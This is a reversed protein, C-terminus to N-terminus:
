KTDKLRKNFLIIDDWALRGFLRCLYYRLYNDFRKLLFGFVGDNKISGNLKNSWLLMERDAFKQTIHPHKEKEIYLYDHILVAFNFDGFTPLINRIARFGSCGDYEFGEQINIITGDSLCINQLPKNIRYRYSNKYKYLPSISIITDNNMLKNYINDVTIM